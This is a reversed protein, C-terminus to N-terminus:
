CDCHPQNSKVDCKKVKIIQQCTVAQYRKYADQCRKARNAYKDNKFHCFVNIFM